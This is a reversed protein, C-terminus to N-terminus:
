STATELGGVAELPVSPPTTPIPRRWEELIQQLEAPRLPKSVFANMGVALCRARDEPTTNATLAIIHVEPRAIGLAARRREIERIRRTTEYGDMQPMMCDMLVLEYPTRRLAALAEVGNVAVDAEFGMRALLQLAVQQNIINDEVILIRAPGSPAVASASVVWPLSARLPAPRADTGHQLAFTIADHLRSERVPKTVWSGVGARRLQEDDFQQGIGALLIITPGNEGFRSRLDTALLTGAGDPLEADLLAFAFPQGSEVSKAITQRAAEAQRVRTPQLGWSRLLHALINAHTASDEVILVRPNPATIPDIPTQLLSGAPLDFRVSFHFTSGKAEESVVGIRGHM